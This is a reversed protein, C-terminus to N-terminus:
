APVSLPLGNTHLLTLQIAFTVRLTARSYPSYHGTVGM